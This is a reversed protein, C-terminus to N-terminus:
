ILAKWSDQPVLLKKSYFSGMPIELQPNEVIYVEKSARAIAVYLLNLDEEPDQSNLSWDLIIIKDYQKGKNAHLVLLKLKPEEEGFNEVRFGSGNEDSVGLRLSHPVHNKKLWRDVQILERESRTCIATTGFDKTNKSVIGRPYIKELQEVIKPCNRYDDLLYEYHDLKMNAKILDIVEKGLGQNVMKFEEDVDKTWDGIYISQYPDLVFFYNKTPISLIVQLQLLSLDQAEDVLIDTFRQKPAKSKIFEQLMKPYSGSWGVAAYCYSHITHANIGRSILEDRAAKTFVLALPKRGKEILSSCRQTMVETKGAGPCAELIINGELEYAIKYQQGEPSFTVTSYAKLQLSTDMSSFDISVENQNTM